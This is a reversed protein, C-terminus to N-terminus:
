GGSVAEAAAGWGGPASAGPEGFGPGAVLVSATEEQRLPLRGRAADAPRLRSRDPRGRVGGADAPGGEKEPRVAARSSSGTQPRRDAGTDLLAPSALLADRDEVLAVPAAPDRPAVALTRGAYPPLSLTEKLLAPGAAPDTKATLEKLSPPYANDDQSRMTELMRVLKNSLEVAPPPLSRLYLQPKGRVEVVGVTPPLSQEALRRQLAAGFAPKLTKEVKVILKAPPHLRKQPTCLLSLACEILGPSDALRNADEALAIPSDPHKLAVLLRDAFPKKKLAKAVLEPPSGPQALMRLTPPYADGGQERLRELTQVLQAALDAVPNSKPM